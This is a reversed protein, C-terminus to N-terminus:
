PADPLGVASRLSLDEQATLRRSAGEPLRSLSIPGIRTRLLDAVTLGVAEFLRRVERRKGEAMVVEISGGRPNRRVEVPRAFGDELQM